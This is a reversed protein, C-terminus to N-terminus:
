KDNPKVLTRRVGRALSRAIPGVTRRKAGRELAAVREALDSEEGVALALSIGAVAAAALLAGAPVQRNGLEWGSLTSQKLRRRGRLGMADSIAVAFDGQNMRTEDRARRFGRSAIRNYDTGAMRGLKMNM